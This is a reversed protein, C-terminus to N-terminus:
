TSLLPMSEFAAVKIQFLSWNGTGELLFQLETCIGVGLLGIPVNMFGERDLDFSFRPIPLSLLSNSTPTNRKILETARDAIVTIDVADDSELFQFRASHPRIQNINEGFTFSRSRLFSKYVQQSNDINQDYYRREVPYTFRSIIGDRTAALLVTYNLDTRDRAFDRVAVDTGGIDFCWTGQWKDLSVSYILCFNNYTFNDLPVSLMYLDNWFTARANDCASWNIRDIYGQVDASAPRWIGQQDSAPAQSCRYVGRGTESLFIVDTETQVITGHCRCGITGSVRNIAWDPVNLGPGTEIVYTAGNRFVALRQTQWLCQGTIVDSAIPDITVSGTAVDFVEPNLADSVILTNQYAYILREVAWIPYKATPGNAPLAVSGFGAAVSYKNLTTGSSFYLVDNALASYVQAGPAYAPGGAASSLTNARNDFKYWATADNALFVGTGVHHISDLSGTPSSKKLRIIGPRPRNLGDRQTLRNEADESATRDIASPPLSNNVGQIPVSADFLVEDDLQPNYLPMPERVELLITVSQGLMVVM